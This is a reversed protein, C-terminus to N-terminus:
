YTTLSALRNDQIKSKVAEFEVALRKEQETSLTTQIRLFMKNEAANVHERVNTMLSGMATKFEDIHQPDLEKIHNLLQKMKAQEDYLHQMEDHYPRALPYLVEEVATTHAILDKYLQGFYEELKQPNNSNQIQNFLAHVKTHDIHILDRINMENDSRMSGAVGSVVAIADQVMAWLSQDAEQGTLEVTSLMEMIGKLQDQHTHNDFNVTNLPAIAIAIDAGVIQAAKHILLGAIAQSHKILEYEAVKEFLSIASSAMIKRAHEIMKVVAFRPEAKIGYQIIVTDITGLNKQDDRLLVELRNSIGRNPCNSILAKDNDILLYQIARMDALKVAIATRKVDELKVSM